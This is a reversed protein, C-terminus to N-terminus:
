LSKIFGIFLPHARMPRSRFEPRAETAIFFAKETGEVLEVRKRNKSVGGVKLGGKEMEDLYKRDVEKRGRHREIIEGNFKAVPEYDRVTNAVGYEKYLNFVRSGKELSVEQDGLRMTGSDRVVDIANEMGTRKAAAIVAAHLGQCIGLYSKGKSLAFDAALVKGGMGEEGSDDLVLIGDVGELDKKTIGEAELWVIELNVKCFKAAARMAEVTSLYIDSNGAYGAVFGVKVTTAYDKRWVRSLKEWDRMDTEGKFRLFKDLIENVNSKMINVPVDFVSEVDPLLVVGNAPIGCMRAIKEAVSKPASKETRVAVIDPLIGFGRADRLANQAPKTKFEGSTKLWPVFLVDIFLCNERGVDTAFERIAEIFSLGEYDGVTGGIEVIHVDGDGTEAAKRIENKIMNVVHPMLQITRGDFKGAREDNLIKWFLFGSSISSHRNTEIDLFREYHGLDLDAELGDHTVFCEGHEEPSLQGADVNLYPECKQVSVRKGKARLIAGVSAAMTGKGVGSLVGGVVFIFKRDQVAMLVELKERGKTCIIDYEQLFGFCFIGRAM